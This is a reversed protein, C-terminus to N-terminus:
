ALDRQHGGRLICGTVSGAPVFCLNSRSCCLIRSNVAPQTAPVPFERVSHVLKICITSQWGTRIPLWNEVAAEQGLIWGYSTSCSVYFHPATVGGGCRSRMDQFVVRGGVQLQRKDVYGSGARDQQMLEGRLVGSMGQRRRMAGLVKELVQTSTIIPYHELVPMQRPRSRNGRTIKNFYQLEGEQPM